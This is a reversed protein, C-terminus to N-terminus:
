VEGDRAVEFADLAQGVGVASLTALQDGAAAGATSQLRICSTPGQEVSERGPPITPLCLSDIPEVMATIGRRERFDHIAQKCSQLASYDDVIVFGGPSVKDYLADLGQHNM